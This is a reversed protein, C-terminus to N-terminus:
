CELIVLWIRITIKKCCSLSNMMRAITYPLPRELQNQDIGIANCTVLRLPIMVSPCLLILFQIRIGMLIHIGSRFSLLVQELISSSSFSTPIDVVFMTSSYVANLLYHIFTSKLNSKLLFSLGKIIKFFLSFGLALSSGLIM